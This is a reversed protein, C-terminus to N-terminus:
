QFVELEIWKELLDREAANDLSFNFGVFRCGEFDEGNHAFKDDKKAM